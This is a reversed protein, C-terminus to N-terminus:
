DARWHLVWGYDWQAWGLQSERRGSQLLDPHRRAAAPMAGPTPMAAARKAGAAAAAAQTKTAGAHRGAASMTLAYGSSHSSPVWPACAPARPRKQKHDPLGLASRLTSTAYSPQLTPASRSHRALSTSAAGCGCNPQSLIRAMAAVRRESADHRALQAVDM